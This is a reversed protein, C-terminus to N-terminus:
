LVVVGRRRGSSEYYVRAESSTQKCLGYDDEDTLLLEQTFSDRRVRNLM